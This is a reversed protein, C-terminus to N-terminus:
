RWLFSKFIRRRTILFPFCSAPSGDPSLDWSTSDPDSPVKVLESKRGQVPDFATFLLRIRAEKRSFAVPVGTRPAASAPIAELRIRRTAAPLCDRVDRSKWCRRRPDARWRFACLSETGAVSGEAARPWQMYLVWKGDPTIQPAWKEEPGTAMPEANRESLGQKYIDFNGNRDSYLFLTKNDPSWGGPWDVREDLTLRQPAKLENGGNALEASISM